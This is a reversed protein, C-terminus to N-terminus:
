THCCAAIRCIKKWAHCYGVVPWFREELIVIPWLLVCREVPIVIPWLLVFESKLYLLLSCYSLEKEFYSLFAVVPRIKRWTHCYAM